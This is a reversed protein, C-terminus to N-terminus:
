RSRSASSDRVQITGKSVRSLAARAAGQVAANTDRTAQHLATKASTAPPGIQGLTRAALARMPPSEHSLLGILTPVAWAADAGLAGIQLMLRGDGSRMENVLVPVFSRNQPDIKQIALAAKVRVQQEGDKLATELAPTSSKAAAGIEGLGGICITKVEPDSDTICKTLAALVRDDVNKTERIARVADRRIQVDSSNLQAILKDVPDGCGCLPLISASLLFLVTYAPVDRPVLYTCQNIAMTSLM